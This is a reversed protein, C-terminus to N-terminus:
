TLQVGAGGTTVLGDAPDVRIGNQTHRLIDPLVPNLNALLADDGTAAHLASVAEIFWFAVDVTNYGSAACNVSRRGSGPERQLTPACGQGAPHGAM